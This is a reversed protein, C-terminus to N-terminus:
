QIPFDSTTWPIFLGDGIHVYRLPDTDGDIVAGVPTQNSVQRIDVWVGLYRGFSADSFIFIPFDILEGREDLGNSWSADNIGTSAARSGVGVIECANDVESGDVSSVLQQFTGNFPSTFEFSWNTANDGYILTLRGGTAGTQSTTGQRIIFCSFFPDSGVKKILFILDGEDSYVCSYQIGLSESTSSGHINLDFNNISQSSGLTSPTSDTSLSGSVDLGVGCLSVNIGQPNSDTNSEDTQILIQPRNDASGSFEYGSPMNYVAWTRDQSSNGITVDNSSNINDSTNAVSGDSSAAVTYSASLMMKHLSYFLEKYQEVQDSNSSTLINNADVTWNKIFTAM